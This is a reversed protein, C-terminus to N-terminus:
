CVQTKWNLMTTLLATLVTIVLALFLLKRILTRCFSSRRRKRSPSNTEPASGALPTTETPERGPPAGMSEPADRHPFAQPLPQEFTNYTRSQPFAPAVPSTPPSESYAPPPPPLRPAHLSYSDLTRRSSIPSSPTNSIPSSPSRESAAASTAARSPYLQSLTQSNTARAGMESNQRAERGPILVKDETDKNDRSTQSPDPVLGATPMERRNFYGDTPSLEDSFSEADSEDNASYLNDSYPM